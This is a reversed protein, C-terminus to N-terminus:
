CKFKICMRKWFFFLLIKGMEMRQPSTEVNCAMLVSRFTVCQQSTPLTWKGTLPKKSNESVKEQYLLRNNVNDRSVYCCSIFLSISCGERSGKQREKGRSLEILPMWLFLDTFPCYHRPSTLLGSLAAHEFGFREIAEFKGELHDTRCVVLQFLQIIKHCTDFINLKLKIKLYHNFTSSLTDPALIGWLFDSCEHLSLISAHCYEM